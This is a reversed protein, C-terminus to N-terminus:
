AKKVAIEEWIVVNLLLLLMGYFPDEVPITGLRIGLNEANNYWVVEGPIWSGTLIGNIIFFPALIIAYSMFFQSLYSKKKYSLFLLVLGLGVGTTMTYARSFHWLGIALLLLGLIFTAVHFRPIQIPKLHKFAFYTFLCAYPICIFFLWEEVPLGIFRTGILYTDNFGWFGWATFYVDWVIFLTMPLLIAPIIRRYTSAFHAKPYFSFALPMSIAVLDLLLYLFRDPM